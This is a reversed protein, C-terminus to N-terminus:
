ESSAVCSLTSYVARDRSQMDRSVPMTPLFADSGKWHGASIAWSRAYPAYIHLLESAERTTM